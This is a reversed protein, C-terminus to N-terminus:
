KVLLCRCKLRKGPERTGLALRCLSDINREQLMMSSVLGQSAVEDVLSGRDDPIDRM